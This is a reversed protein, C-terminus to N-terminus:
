QPRNRGHGEATARRMRTLISTWALSRLTIHTLVTPVWYGTKIATAPGKSVRGTELVVLM